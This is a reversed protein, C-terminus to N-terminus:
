TGGQYYVHQQKKTGGRLIVFGKYLLTIIVVGEGVVCVCM